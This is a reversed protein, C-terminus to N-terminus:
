RRHGKGIAKIMPLMPGNNDIWIQAQSTADVQDDHRSGPFTLHEPVYETAVWSYDRDPTTCLRPHPLWIRKQEWHTLTAAVRQEKSQDQPNYREIGTMERELTDAVDKGAAREEIITARMGPWLRRQERMAALMDPPNMRMRVQDLLYRNVNAVGWTQGVVFDSERTKRFTCDWSGIIYDLKPLTDPTWFQVWAKLIMAGKAPAPAQQYQGAYGRSTLDIRKEDLFTRPLRKPFLLEGPETRPDYPGLVTYRKIGDYEAPLCLHEWGGDELMVGSLDLEHLRQMVIVLIGTEPDNLRTLIKTRYDIVHQQLGAKDSFADAPDLPDDGLAVDADSGTGKKGMPRSIRHGGASNRFYGKAAQAQKGAGAAFTWTPRFLSQYLPSLCLERHRDADRFVIDRDASTALFQVTPDSAWWWSPWGVSVIYSKGQRPPINILLKQIQGATCAQLHEAIAPIHWNWILRNRPPHHVPWMRRLYAGLDRRLEEGECLLDLTELDVSSLAAEDAPSLEIM